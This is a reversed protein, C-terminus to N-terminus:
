GIFKKLENAIHKSLITHSSASPHLPEEPVIGKTYIYKVACNNNKNYEKVFATLEEANFGVFAGLVVVLANPHKQRILDLMKEYENFYRDANGRDNAGHNCMVIDPEFNTEGEDFCYPYGVAAPPYEGCGSRTLGVAGYGMFYPRLNLIKATKWAYTETVDDAYVRNDQYEPYVELQEPKESTALVGETISDGIFEIKLRNDNPLAVLNYADIGKLSIKGDLPHYFRSHIEVASKYIVKVHHTGNDNARIKMFHTLEAEIKAGDDVSIYVHGFPRSCSDLDFFMFCNEGEFAFEFYSGCATATKTNNLEGRRGTYRIKPNSYELYSM